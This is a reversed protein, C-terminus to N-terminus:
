KSKEKSDANARNLTAALNHQEIIIKPLPCNEIFVKVEEKEKVVNTIYEIQTQGRERIIKDRYVIKEEIVVNEKQSEARAVELREELDKVKAKWKADNTVIGAMFTGVFVFAIGGIKLPAKYLPLFSSALFAVAGVVLVSVWFWLPVFSLM